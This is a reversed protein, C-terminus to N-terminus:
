NSQPVLPRHNDLYDIVEAPIPWGHVRFREAYAAELNCTVHLSGRVCRWCANKVPHILCRHDHDVSRAGAPSTCYPWPCAFPLHRALIHPPVNCMGCNKGKWRMRGGSTLYRVWREWGCSHRALIKAYGAHPEVRLVRFAGVRTGPVPPVLKLSRTM